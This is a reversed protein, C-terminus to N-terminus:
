AASARAQFVSANEQAQPTWRENVLALAATAEGGTIRGDLVRRMIEDRLMAAISAIVGTILEFLQPMPWETYGANLAAKAGDQARAIGEMFQRLQEHKPLQPNRMADRVLQLHDLVRYAMIWEGCAHHARVLEALRIYEFGERTSVDHENVLQLPLGLRRWQELRAPEPREIVGMDALWQAVRAINLDRSLKDFGLKECATALSDGPEPPFEFEGFPPDAETGLDSTM